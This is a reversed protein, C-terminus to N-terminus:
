AFAAEERRKKKSKGTAVVTFNDRGDPNRAGPYGHDGVVDEKSYDQKGMESVKVKPKETKNEEPETQEGPLDPDFLPTDEAKVPETNVAPKSYVKTPDSKYLGLTSAIDEIKEIRILGQSHLELLGQGVDTVIVPNAGWSPPSVTRVADNEDRFQVIYGKKEQITRRDKGAADIRPKKVTTNHIIFRETTKQKVM